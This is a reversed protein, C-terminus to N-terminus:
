KLRIIINRPLVEEINDVNLYENERVKIYEMDEVNFSEGKFDRCKKRDAAYKWKNKILTYQDLEEVLIVDATRFIRKDLMARYYDDPNKAEIIPKDWKEDDTNRISIKRNDSMYQVKM